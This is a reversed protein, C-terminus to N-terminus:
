RNGEQVVVQIAGVGNCSYCGCRPWGESKCISCTVWKTIRYASLDGAELDRTFQELAETTKNEIFSM